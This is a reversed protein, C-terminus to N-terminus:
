SFRTTNFEPSARNLPATYTQQLDFSYFPIQSLAATVPSKPFVEIVDPALIVDQAGVTRLTSTIIPKNISM